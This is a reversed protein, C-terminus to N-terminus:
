YGTLLVYYDSKYSPKDIIILTETPLSNIDANVFTETLIGM